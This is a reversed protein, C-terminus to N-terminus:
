GRATIIKNAFRIVRGDKILTPLLRGSVDINVRASGSNAIKELWYDNMNKDQEMDSLPTVSAGIPLNPIFTPETIWSSRAGVKVLEPQGGEGVIAAGGKHYDTGEAYASVSEAQKISSIATIFAGAIAAAAAIIRPVYTYPDGASQTSVMKAIALGQTILVQVMALSQEIKVRKKEDEIYQAKTMGLGLVSDTISNIADAQKEFNGVNSASSLSAAMQAYDQKAAEIKDKEDGFIALREDALKRLDETKAEEISIINASAEATVRAIELQYYQTIQLERAPDQAIDAVQQEKLLRIKEQLITKEQESAIFKMKQLTKEIELEKGLEETTAKSGEAKQKTNKVTKETETNILSTINLGKELESNNNIMNQRAIDLYYMVNKWATANDTVGKTTEKGLNLQSLLMDKQDQLLPLKDILEKREKATARQIDFRLQTFELENQVIKQITAEAKARVRYQDIWQKTVRSIEQPTAKITDLQSGTLSNIEKVISQWETSGRKVNGLEKQLLRVRTINELTSENVKQNIENISNTLRKRNEQEQSLEKEAQVHKYLLVTLTGLAAVAALIWGVVPISKIAVGVARVSGALTWSTKTAVTEAAALGTTATAAATTAVTDAAEAAIKKQTFALMVKSWIAKLKLRLVSEAQLSNTIQTLSNFGQQLIMMRAYIKMMDEGEFGMAVMGAQALQFSDALVGVGQSMAATNGADDAMGQISKNADDMADKIEGGRKEMVSMAATAQKLGMTMSDLKIKANKYEDSNVGVTNALRKVEAEQTKVATKGEDLKMKYSALEQVIQRLEMKLSKGAIEYNGVSRQNDGISKDLGKIKEDLENIGSQITMGFESNREVETFQSYLDKLQTLRVSMGKMSDDAYQQEKITRKLEATAGSLEAKLKAQELKLNGTAEAYNTASVDAKKLEDKIESLRRDTEMIYQALEKQSNAFMKYKAAAQEYATATVKVNAAMKEGEAKIQREINLRESETEILKETTARLNNTADSAGKLTNADIMKNNGAGTAIAKDMTETLKNLDDTLKRVQDFAEQSVIESILDAM